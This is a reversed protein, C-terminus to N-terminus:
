VNHAFMVAQGSTPHIAPSPFDMSGYQVENGQPHHWTPDVTGFLGGDGTIINAHQAAESYLAIIDLTDILKSKDNSILRLEM